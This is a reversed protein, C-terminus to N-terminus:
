RTERTRSRSVNRNFEDMISNTNSDSNSQTGTMDSSTGTSSGSCLQDLPLFMVNNGDEIDIM